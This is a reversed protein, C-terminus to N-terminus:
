SNPSGARTTPLKENAHATPCTSQAKANGGGGAGVGAPAAPLDTPAARGRELSILADKTLATPSSLLVDLAACYALCTPKYLPTNVRTKCM